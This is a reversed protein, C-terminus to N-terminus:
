TTGKLFKVLLEQKPHSYPIVRATKALSSWLILLFGAADYAELDESHFERHSHEYTCIMSEVVATYISQIQNNENTCQLLLVLHDLIDSQLGQQTGLVIHNKISSFDLPQKRQM